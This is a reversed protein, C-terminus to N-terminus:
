KDGGKPKQKLLVESKVSGRSMGLTKEIEFERLAVLKQLCMAIVKLHDEPKKEKPM